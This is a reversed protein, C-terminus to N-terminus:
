KIVEADPNRKKADALTKYVRVLKGDVCPHKEYAILEYVTEITGYSSYKRRVIQRKM